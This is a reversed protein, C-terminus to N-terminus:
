EAGKEVSGLSAGQVPRPENTGIRGARKRSAGRAPRHGQTVRPWPLRTSVPTAPRSPPPAMQRPFESRRQAHWTNTPATRRRARIEGPQERPRWRRKACRVHRESIAPHEFLLTTTALKNPRTITRPQSPTHLSSSSSSSPQHPLSKTTM